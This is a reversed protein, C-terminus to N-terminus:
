RLDTSCRNLYLNATYKLLNLVSIHYIKPCISSTQVSHVTRSHDISLFFEGPVDPSKLHLTRNTYKSSQNTYKYVFNEPGVM